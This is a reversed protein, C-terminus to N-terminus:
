GKRAYTDHALKLLSNSKEYYYIGAEFIGTRNYHDLSYYAKRTGCENKPFLMYDPFEHTHNTTFGDQADNQKVKVGISWTTPDFFYGDVELWCHGPFGGRGMKGRGDHDLNDSDNDGVQWACYGAVVKVDRGFKSKFQEKAFMASAICDGGFDKNSRKNSKAKVLKTIAKCESKLTTRVVALEEPTPANAIYSAQAARQRLMESRQRKARAQFKKQRKSLAM